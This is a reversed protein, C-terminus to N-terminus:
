AVKRTIIHRWDGKGRELEIRFKYLSLFGVLVKYLDLSHVEIILVINTSKSLVNTAGKLVEFEAGEVDIKIWKIQEEKIKNQQLLNDLTNTNVEIFKDQPKSRSSMITNYITYGSEEAPTYLRIRSEKSYAAYNLPIVNTLNNLKINKNLMEFNSPDAEIAIVKGKPGVRKSAIITYHGIHAGIDLVIDGSEPRFHKLIEEEHGTMFTFDENNVRCYFKYEYKSMNIQLLIYNAVGLLKMSRYLFSNFGIGQQLYLEDRRKKGLAITLM